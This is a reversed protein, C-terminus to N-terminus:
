PLDFSRERRFLEQWQRREEEWLKEMRSMRGSVEALRGRADELDQEAKERAQREVILESLTGAMAQRAERVAADFGAVDKALKQAEDRSKALQDRSHESEEALVKEREQLRRNETDLQELVTVLRKEEKAFREEEMRLLGQAAQLKQVMASVETVLRSDFSRAQRQLESIEAEARNLTQSLTRIAQEKIELVREWREKHDGYQRKVLALAELAANGFVPLRETERLPAVPEMAPEPSGAAVKAWLKNLEADWNESNM